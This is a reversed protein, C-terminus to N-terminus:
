SLFSSTPHCPSSSSCQDECGGVLRVGKSKLHIGGARDRGGAESTKREVVARNKDEGEERSCACLHACIILRHRYSKKEGDHDTNGLEFVKASPTPLLVMTVESMLSAYTGWTRGRTISPFCAQNQNQSMSRKSECTCCTTGSTVM